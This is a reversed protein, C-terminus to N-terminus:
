RDQAWNLCHRVAKRWEHLRAQRKDENMQPEFCRDQAWHATLESSSLWVGTALGALYAAGLATTEIVKPRSVPVGLIDAQFQMLLDNRCAGGDVRLNALQRGSDAVMADLLDCSQFAMAELAARALHAKTTGRTLGLITGRAHGEWWPAGLGTFAPVVTVGGSDPVSAALAEIDSSSEIIGLGDRLWQVLAGCVFVSGELAYSVRDGFQWAVSSLLRNGSFVPQSGTNMLLFSGTGYTNKAMGPELCLQGFSAAQQDGAMAALPIPAGLLEARCVGLRGSNAVVRPLVQRPIRFLELLGEDWRGERINYLMTRSANAADTIHLEGGTLNWALWTDVTGFALEGKEARSRAGPVHDLLWELKTASFYADLVLGTKHQITAAYGERELAECRSTTRRDQWVIAPGLPVGTARDWLLTTERQNSIGVASIDSPPVGSRAIAERAVSLQSEWIELANHEVWGPQPFSQPFERQASSCVRGEQDFVLARSSTTGQDLALVHPM